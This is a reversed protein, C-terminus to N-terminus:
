RPRCGAATQRASDHLRLARICMRTRVKEDLEDGQRVPVRREVGVAGVRRLRGTSSFVSDRSGSQGGDLDVGGVQPRITSTPVMGCRVRRAQARGHRRMDAPRVWLFSSAFAYPSFRVGHQRQGAHADAAGAGFAPCSAARSTEGPKMCVPFWRGRLPRARLRWRARADVPWVTASESSVPRCFRAVTLAESGLGAIATTSSVCLALGRWPWCGRRRGGGTRCPRGRWTHFGHSPSGM